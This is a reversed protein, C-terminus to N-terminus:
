GLLGFDVLGRLTADDIPAGEAAARARAEEVDHDAFHALADFLPAELELLDYPSYTRLVRKGGRRQVLTVPTPRLTEPLPASARASAARLRRVRRAVEVGGIRLVDDWGLADVRTACDAFWRHEGMRHPGWMRAYREPDVVDDIGSADLRDRAAREEEIAEVAEAGLDSELVCWWALARDIAGLLDRAAIWLARGTAGREHKCFWTACVADRAEWVSCGFTAGAVLYPCRLGQARGFAEHGARFVAAYRAPARIGLPTVGVRAHLKGELRERGAARSPHHDRFYRGVRHSALEPHYTCCRVAPDFREGAESQTMPCAGCDARAEGRPLPESLAAELWADYPAPIM